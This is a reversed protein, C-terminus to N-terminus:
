SFAWLKALRYAKDFMQEQEEKSSDLLFSILSIYKKEEIVKLIISYEASRFSYDGIATAWFTYIDSGRNYRDVSPAYIFWKLKLILIKNQLKTM